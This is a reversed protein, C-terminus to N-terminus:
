RERDGPAAHHPLARAGRGRGAQAPQVQLRQHRRREGGQHRDGPGREADLGRLRQDAGPERRSALLRLFFDDNGLLAYAGKDVIPTDGMEMHAQRANSPLMAPEFCATYGMAAYRYGTALTSPAAGGFCAGCVDTAPLLDRRDIDPLMARALNVKGGGIHTHLDIAGAMAIQGSVDYTRDIREGDRPGDVIRGDRIFLDRVVDDVGNAPDIVRAGALKTLMGRDLGSCCRTSVQAVSPLASTRLRRLYLSVVKDTRLLHGDADIGPTAVPLFVDPERALQLDAAGSCSSPVRRVRAARRRVPELDVAPLRGRRAGAREACRLPASRLRRARQRPQCSLTVGCQWTHVANATLDANTGALPLGAFRREVNLTRLLRSLAQLALEAHAFELDGAAWVAVGYRAAQLWEVCQALAQPAVGDLRAPDAPRGGVQACLMTLLTPLRAMPAGLTWASSRSRCRLAAAASAADLLIARRPPPTGYLDSAPALVREVFRPFRAHWGDGILLLLDARNKVEALTTTIWGFEQLVHLNRYKASSGAHDVVAGLRRALALTARMGAVDTGLGGILPRRRQRLLQAAADLAADLTAPKGGVRAGTRAAATTGLRAFAAVAASALM